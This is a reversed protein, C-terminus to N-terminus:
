HHARPSSSEGQENLASLSLTPFARLTQNTRPIKIIRGGGGWVDYQFWTPNESSEFSRLQWKATEWEHVWVCKARHSVLIPCQLQWLILLTIIVLFTEKTIPLPYKQDLISSTTSILGTQGTQTLLQSSEGELATRSSSAVPSIFNAWTKVFFLAAVDCCIRWREARQSFRQQRGRLGLQLAKVQLLAVRTTVTERKWESSGKGERRPLLLQWCLGEKRGGWKQFKCFAFPSFVSNISALTLTINWAASILLNPAATLM